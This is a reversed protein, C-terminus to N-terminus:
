MNNLFLYAVFLLILVLILPLTVAVGIKLWHFFGQKNTSTLGPEPSPMADAPSSKHWSTADIKTLARKYDRGASDVQVMAKGLELQFKEAPWSEEDIGNLGSLVERFRSRTVSLLEVMRSAQVEERELLVQSKTLKEIVERKAREYHGQRQTLQQLEDKERELEEQRMRLREIQQVAGAVQTSMDERNQSLRTEAGDHFPRSASGDPKSERNERKRESDFFSDSM